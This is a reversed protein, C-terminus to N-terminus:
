IEGLSLDSHNQCSHKLPAHSINLNGHNLRIIKREHIARTIDVQKQKKKLFVTLLSNTNLKKKKNSM